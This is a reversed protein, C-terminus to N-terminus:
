DNSQLFSVIDAINYNGVTTWNHGGSVQVRRATSGIAAQLTSQTTPPCTTDTSGHYCLWPLGAYKGAKAQTTPNSTAGNASQTWTGGYAADITGTYSPNAHIDSLDAVGMSSFVAAVNAPNQSAYNMVALHGMSQGILLVKGTKAGLTGQLYSRASAVRSVATSNGWQNGGNYCMVVPYGAAVVARIIAHFNGKTGDPTYLELEDGGYGHCAVVGMVKGDGKFDWPLISVAPEGAILDSDWRTWM